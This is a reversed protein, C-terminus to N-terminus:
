AGDAADARHTLRSLKESLVRQQADADKSLHLLRHCNPCLAVANEVTDPGGDTLRQIHHVELYPLGNPLVFPAASSCRECRGNAEQLVWAKVQADRVFVRRTANVTVAPEVSAPPRPVRGNMLLRAVARDLDEDASELEGPSLPIGLASRLVRVVFPVAVHPLAEVTIHDFDPRRPTMTRVVGDPLLSLFVKADPGFRFNVAGNMTILDVGVFPKGDVNIQRASPRTVRAHAELEALVADVVPAERSSEVSHDAANLAASPHIKGSVDLAARLREGTFRVATESSMEFAHYDPDAHRPDPADVRAVGPPLAGM